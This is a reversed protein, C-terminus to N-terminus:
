AVYRFEEHAEQYQRAADQGSLEALEFLMRAAAFRSAVYQSHWLRKQERGEEDWEGQALARELRERFLGHADQLAKRARQYFDAAAKRDSESLEPIRGLRVPRRLIEAQEWQIL